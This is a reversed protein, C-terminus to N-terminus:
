GKTGGRGLKLADVKGFHSVSSDMKKRMLFCIMVNLDLCRTLLSVTSMDSQKQVTDRSVLTSM